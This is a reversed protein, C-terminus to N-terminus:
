ENNRRSDYYDNDAYDVRKPTFEHIVRPDINLLSNNTFHCEEDTNYDADTISLYSATRLSEANMNTNDANLDVRRITM